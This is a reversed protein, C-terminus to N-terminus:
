FINTTSDSSGSSALYSLWDEDFYDEDYTYETKNIKISFMTSEESYYHSFYGTGREESHDYSRRSCYLPDLIPNGDFDYDVVNLEGPKHSWFGDPNQRYWHYDYKNFVTDFALAIRYAGEDLTRNEDDIKAVVFGYPFFVSPLSDAIIAKQIFGAKYYSKHRSFDHEMLTRLTDPEKIMGPDLHFCGERSVINLAYNYCNSYELTDEDSNWIEPQYEIEAGTPEYEVRNKVEYEMNEFIRLGGVCIRGKNNNNDSENKMAAYIRIRTLPKPFRLKYTAMENRNEPLACEESLLDLIPHSTNYEDYRYEEIVATANDANIGEAQQSRWFSLDIDIRDVPVYFQIELFAEDFGKRKPSLVICEKQIYGVRYRRTKFLFNEGTRHSAFTNRTEVDCAYYDGFGSFDTPKIEFIRRSQYLDPKDQTVSIGADNFNMTESTVRLSVSYKNGPHSFNIKKWDEESISYTNGNGISANLIPEGSQDSISLDIRPHSQSFWHEEYLSDWEFSPPVDIYGPNKIRINNPYILNTTPLEIGDRSIYKGVCTELNMTAPIIAFADIVDDLDIGADTFSIHKVFGDGDSMGSHAYLEDTVANYEYVVFAHMGFISSSANIIVPVGNRINNLIFEKKTQSDTESVSSIFARNNTIGRKYVLYYMSLSTEEYLNLGLPPNEESGSSIGPFMQIALDILCSQLYQQSTQSVFTLYDNIDLGAIDDASEPIAGPSESNMPIRIPNSVDRADSDIVTNQIFSNDVFDDDVYSDFFSLVMSISSFACTGNVNLPVNSNLHSFYVAAYTNLFAENDNHQQQIQTFSQSNVRNNTTKRIPSGSLFDLCFCFSLLFAKIISLM